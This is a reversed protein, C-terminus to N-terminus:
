RQGYVIKYAGDPQIEYVYFLSSVREGTNDLTIPGTIGPFDKLTHLYDALTRADTSKTQEIAHMIFRLGDANTLTFISPPKQNYAQEYAAIFNKAEPYPLYEPKPVNVLYAGAAAAGALKLFEPNDNADGGVFPIDLGIQKQQARILGSDSYYGAFYIADPNAAKIKTLVATFDQAGANIFERTVKGGLKQVHKAVGDGLDKAYSSQDSLVVINKYGKGNILYDATFEAEARNPSSNRFFTWANQQTLPDATADSTQLVGARLYIPQPAQTATSTYSGIVALVKANILNRACVAAQTPKGEDDCVVVDLPRGLLGGKDNQQKVLLRVAKEIGQGELAFEGTIPAQVGIKIPDAAFATALGLLLAALAAFPTKM